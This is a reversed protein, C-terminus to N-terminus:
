GEHELVEGSRRLGVFPRWAKSLEHTSSRPELRRRDLSEQVREAHLGVREVARAFGAPNSVVVAVFQPFLRGNAWRYVACGNRQPGFLTGRWVASAHVDRPL